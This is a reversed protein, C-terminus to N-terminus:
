ESILTRARSLDFWSLIESPQRNKTCEQLHKSRNFRNLLWQYISPENKVIHDWNRHGFGEAYYVREYDAQMVAKMEPTPYIGVTTMAMCLAQSHTMALGNWYVIYEDLIPLYLIVPKPDLTSWSQESRMTM